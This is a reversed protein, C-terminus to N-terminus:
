CAEKTAARDGFKVNPADSIPAADNIGARRAATMRAERHVIFLRKAVACDRSECHQSRDDGRAFRSCKECFHEVIADYFMGDDIQGSYEM